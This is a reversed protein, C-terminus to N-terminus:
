RLGAPPGAMSNPLAHIKHTEDKSAVMFGFWAGGEGNVTFTRPSGRRADLAPHGLNV